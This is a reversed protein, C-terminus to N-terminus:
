SGVAINNAPAFALTAYGFSVSANLVVSGLTATVTQTGVSRSALTALFVGSGNTSGSAPTFTNNGGSASLTVSQGSILNGYADKATVTLQTTANGDAPVNAPSAVLTSTSSSVAGISISVTQSGTISGNITDTATVSPSGATKLAVANSFTKTGSTLTSNAPLTAQPDTSTFHVTGSYGTAMNGYSDQATVTVSQATGATANSLGTVLLTSAAAPTIVLGTQSGTISGNVTDTATVGQTGVTKLAVGSFTHVGNDAPLFTYNTPLTAQPDTSTFHLTGQYSTALNSYADRATVTLSQTTGASANVLGTLVLTTAAGATTVVGTQTGTMSSNLTDTATISQTGLTGLM